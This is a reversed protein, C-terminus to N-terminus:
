QQSALLGDRYSPYMPEFGLMERARTSNIRRNAEVVSTLPTAFKAEPASLLRAAETYFDRRTVPHGDSINFTEGQVEEAMLVAQVGDHLHILNLWKDADATYVDGNLLAQKRLWRGPGYIGAFRLTVAEPLEARVLGEVELVVQGSDDLPEMPSTEDVWSGDTQGYVSTSSIHVFGDVEMELALVNRIGEVYVERMTKGARRDLGVAYLLTGIPPLSELAKLSEPQTVDGVIPILGSAALEASRNRTLAYVSRGEALWAAAVASGLYGCGLILGPLQPSAM